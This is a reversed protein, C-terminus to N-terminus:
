KIVMGECPWELVMEVDQREPGGVKPATISLAQLAMLPQEKEARLLFSVAAAYDASARVHVSRRATRRDPSHEKPMPLARFEGEAYEVNVLGSETAAADLLSKVRMGYSNLMPSLWTSRRAENAKEVEAVRKEVDTRQSIALEVGNLRVEADSLAKRVKLLSASLPTVVGIYVAVSVAILLLAVTSSNTKM